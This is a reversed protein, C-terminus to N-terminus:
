LGDFFYASTNINYFKDIHRLCTPSTVNIETLYEGIIDLGVLSLGKVKLIPSVQSCIWRDRDTFESQIASGGAALNARTEGKKAVRSVPYPIPEGHVMIIRKDGNKIEPIYKQVMVFITNNQTVTEIIVNLNPDNDKIRFISTGGMGDLPKLIIDQHLNLFEQLQAKSSTVVSPVCCQPFWSTFLKENVDRLAQPKNIVRVGQKEALELLLTTYIYEMDVPPDKRMLVLDCLSLSEIMESEIAYYDQNRDILKIKKMLAFVENDKSFLDKQEFYYVDINRKQAELMLAFTSDKEPHISEIPDMVVGLTKISLAKM